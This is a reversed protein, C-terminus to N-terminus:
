GAAAAKADIDVYMWFEQWFPPRRYGIVWPQVLDSVFRHVHPKYPVYVAAIRQAQVFLERREQNDPLASLREYLADFEANKFRAMNQGGIQKSHYRQYGGQSDPDASLGGVGWLM